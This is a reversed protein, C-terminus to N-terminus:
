KPVFARIRQYALALERRLVRSRLVYIYFNMAYSIFTIRHLVHKLVRLKKSKVALQSKGTVVLVTDVFNLVHFPMNVTVYTFSLIILMVTTNRYARRYICDRTSENSYVTAKRRGRKRLANLIATSREEEESANENHLVAVPTSILGHESQITARKLISIIIFNMILISTFPLVFVFISDALQLKM